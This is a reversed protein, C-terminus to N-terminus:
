FAMTDGDPLKGLVVEAIADYDAETIVYDSGDVGDRGDQGNQGNTGNKVTFTHDGTADTIVVTTGTETETTSVTPSFGDTGKSGNSGNKGHLITINQTTGDKQTAYVIAGYSVQKLTVAPSFGDQGNQGDQGNVGDVGDRGDQGNRGDIGDKGNTGNHLYFIDTVIEGEQKSTVTIKYGDDTPTAEFTPSYGDKGESIEGMNKLLALIEDLVEPYKAQGEKSANVSDLTRWKAVNSKKVKITEDDVAHCGVIQVDFNEALNMEASVIFSIYEEKNELLYFNGDNVEVRYSDDINYDPIYFRIETVLNEGEYGVSVGDPMRWESGTDILDIDIIRGVM